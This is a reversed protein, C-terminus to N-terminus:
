GSLWRELGWSIKFESCEGAKTEKTNMNYCAKSKMLPKKKKELMHTHTHTNKPSKVDCIGIMNVKWDKGTWGCM